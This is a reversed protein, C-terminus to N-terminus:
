APTGLQALPSRGGSCFSRTSLACRMSTVVDLGDRRSEMWRCGDPDHGRVDRKPKTVDLTKYGWRQM